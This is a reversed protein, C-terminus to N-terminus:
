ALRVERAQRLRVTRARRGGQWRLDVLDLADHRLVNVAHQLSPLLQLKQCVLCLSQHALYSTVEERSFEMDLHRRLSRQADIYVGERGQHVECASRNWRVALATFRINQHCFMFIFSMTPAATSSSTTTMKRMMQKAFYLHKWHGRCRVRKSKSESRGQCATSGFISNISDESADGRAGGRARAREGGRVCLVPSPIRPNRFQRLHQPCLALVRLPQAVVCFSSDGVLTKRIYRTEACSICRTEGRCETVRRALDGSAGAASLLTRVTISWCPTPRTTCLGSPEM